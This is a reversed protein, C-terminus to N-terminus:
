GTRAGLKVEVPYAKEQRVVLFDVEANKLQEGANKAAYRCEESLFYPYSRFHHARSDTEPPPSSPYPSKKLNGNTFYEM